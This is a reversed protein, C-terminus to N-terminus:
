TQPNDILGSDLKMWMVGHLARNGHTKAAEDKTSSEEAAAAPAKLAVGLLDDRAKGKLSAAVLTMM